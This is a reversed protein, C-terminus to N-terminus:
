RSRYLMHLRRGQQNNNADVGGKQAPAPLFVQCFITLWKTVVWFLLEFECIGKVMSGSLM